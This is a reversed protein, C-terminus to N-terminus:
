GVEKEVYNHATTIPPLQKYSSTIRPTAHRSQCPHALAVSEQALARAEGLNRKIPMVESGRRVKFNTGSIYKRRAQTDTHTHILMDLHPTHHISRSISNGKRLERQGFTRFMCLPATCLIWSVVARQIEVTTQAYLKICM